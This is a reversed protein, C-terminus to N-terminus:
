HWWLLYEPIRCLGYGNVVLVLKIKQLAVPPLRFREKYLASLSVTM